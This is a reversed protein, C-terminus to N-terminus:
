RQASRFHLPAPLFRPSSSRLLSRVNWLASLRSRLMSRSAASRVATTVFIPARQAAVRGSVSRECARTVAMCVNRLVRLSSHLIQETGAVLTTWMILQLGHQLSLLIHPLGTCCAPVIYGRERCISRQGKSRSLPTRTM